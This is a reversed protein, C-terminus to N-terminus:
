RVREGSLACDFGVASMGRLWEDLDSYPQPVLVHHVSAVSALARDIRARLQDGAEDRDAIVWVDLGAFAPAWARKFGGVGPIGVVAPEEYINVLAAVDSLGECVVVHGREGALVLRDAEYPCPTTGRASLWRLRASELARDQWHVVKGRLRFPFRVRPNGYGDRVVTLGLAEVVQSGWGRDRLFRNLIEMAPLTGSERHWRNMGHRQTLRNIAEATNCGELWEILDIVDGQKDCQSWCRFRGHEVTFSPDNDEHNPAPCHLTVKDGNHRAIRGGHRVVEALLDSRERVGVIRDSRGGTLRRGKASGPNM